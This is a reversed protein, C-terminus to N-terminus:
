TGGKIKPLVKSMFIFTIAITIGTVFFYFLWVDVVICSLREGVTIATNACDLHSSDRILIILSKLPTILVSIIVFVMIATIVGTFNKKGTIYAISAAVLIGIYYFLGMGLIIVTAQNEVSINPNSSNLQTTNVAKGIEEKLPASLIVILILGMISVMISVIIVQSKKSKRINM